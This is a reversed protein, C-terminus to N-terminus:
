DEGKLIKKTIEYVQPNKNMDLLATHLPYIINGCDGTVYYTKAFNLYASKNQVVGDGTDGDTNCGIGIISYVPISMSTQLSLKNMFLSNANLDTCESETGFVSCYNIVSGTIGKNPTAILILKDIDKEGFIQIYRRAVLGGMSHGILIVKDKGTKFKVSDIIEKLRIVYTDINDTKTQIIISDGQDTLIDFYYSARFSLPYNIKGYIGLFSSNYDGVLITGADIIEDKDLLEQIDAFDNLRMEASVVESFQHGHLFLIPYNNKVSACESCNKKYCCIETIDKLSFNSINQFNIIIKNINFDLLIEDSYSNSINNESDNIMRKEIDYLTNNIDNLLNFKNTINIKSDLTQSFNNFRKILNSLRIATLNSSYNQKIEAIKDHVNKSNDILNNYNDAINFFSKNFLYFYSNNTNIRNLEILFNNYDGFDWYKITDNFTIIYNSYEAQLIQCKDKLMNFEPDKSNNIIDEAFNLYKIKWSIDAYIENSLRKSNEILNRQKENFNHNVVILISRKKIKEDTDCLSTKINKCRVEYRYLKQGSNLDDILLSHRIKYFGSPIRINFTDEKVIQNKGLDVLLSDCEVKCFFNTISYIKFELDVNQGNEVFFVENNVDLKIALDSGILYQVYIYIRAGFIILLFIGIVAFFLVLFRKKSNKKKNEEKIAM